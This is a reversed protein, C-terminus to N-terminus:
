KKLFVAIGYGRKALTSGEVLMLIDLPKVLIVFSNYLILSFFVWGPIWPGICAKALSIESYVPSGFFNPIYKPIILFM